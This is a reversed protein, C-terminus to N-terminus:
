GKNYTLQSHLYPNIEPIHIKEISKHTQNQAPVM